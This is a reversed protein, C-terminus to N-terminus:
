ACWRSHVVLLRVHEIGLQVLASSLHHHDVIYLGGPGKVAPLPNKLLFKELKRPKTLLQKDVMLQRKVDM